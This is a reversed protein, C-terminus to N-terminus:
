KQTRRVIFVAFTADTHPPVREVSGIPKTTSTSRMPVAILKGDYNGTFVPQGFYDQVDILEYKDGRKLVSSLDVLVNADHNWDYIIINARGEEYKNPRIFIQTRESRSDAKVNTGDSEFRFRWLDINTKQDNIMFSASNGAAPIYANSDFEYGAVSQGDSTEVEVNNGTSYITNDRATVSNWWLIKLPVKSVIYNGILSVDRNHKDEYGLRIGRNKNIPASIENYIYNQRLTIREAPVGEVGGVLVQDAVQDDLTLAGNNFIANGEIDFGSIGSKTSNAYLHLGYGASNFIVNDLIFHTGTKNHGYIGHEKKNNGNNFVICGYIETSGEENWLGFGHGNDHIVLDIYKTNAAYVNVGSGRWPNLEGDADLRNRNPFSNTIELDRFWVFPGRVNLTGTERAAMNKDLVVRAGAIARIQVPAAESGRITSEFAGNYVGDALWITDGPKVRDRVAKEDLATKLDWPANRTGSGGPKGGPTVFWEQYKGTGAQQYKEPGSPPDGLFGAAVEPTSRITRLYVGACLAFAAIMCLLLARTSTPTTPPVKVRMSERRRGLGAKNSIPSKRDLKEIIWSGKMTILQM